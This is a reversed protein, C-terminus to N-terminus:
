KRRCTKLHNGHAQAQGGFLSVPNSDRDGLFSIIEKGDQEKYCEWGRFLRELPPADFKRKEQNM